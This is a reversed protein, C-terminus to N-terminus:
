ILTELGLELTFSNGAGVGVFPEPCLLTDLFEVLNHRQRGLPNLGLLSGAGQCLCVQSALQLDFIGM